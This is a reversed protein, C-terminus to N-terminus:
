VTSRSPIWCKDSPLGWIVNAEEDSVLTTGLYGSPPPSEVAVLSCPEQRSRGVGTGRSGRPIGGRSVCM